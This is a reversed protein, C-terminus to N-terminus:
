VLLPLGLAKWFIKFTNEKSITMPDKAVSHSIESKKPIGVPSKSDSKGYILLVSPSVPFM